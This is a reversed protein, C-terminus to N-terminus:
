PKQVDPVCTAGIMKVSRVAIQPTAAKGANKAAPTMVGSVEVIQGVHAALDVGDRQTTLIHSPLIGSTGVPVRGEGAAATTPTLTYNADAGALCGSATVTRAGKPDAKAAKSKSVPDTQAALTAATVCLAAACASIVRRM